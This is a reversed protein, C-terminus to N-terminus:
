CTLAARALWILPSAGRRPFSAVISFRRGRKKCKSLSSNGSTRSFMMLLSCVTLPPITRRKMFETSKQGCGLQSTMSMSSSESLRRGAMRSSASSLDHRTRCAIISYMGRSAVCSPFGKKSSCSPFRHIDQSPSVTKLMRSAAVTLRFFSVSTKPTSQALTAITGLTIPM